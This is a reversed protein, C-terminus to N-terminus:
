ACEIDATVLARLEESVQPRVGFWKEFGPVAQHLLMGLGDVGRLAKEGARKLLQTQLPAYVLDTVVSNGPLGALDIELPAQGTMGLTTTNVLLGCGELQADRTDWDHVHIPGGFHTALADARSRTRNLLRIERVDRALLAHVIARAAGGAGLVVVVPGAEDWGPAGEDLNTIFGYGDTNSAHLEGDEFWLTNAAGIERAAADAHAACQLAAEKHPVTVNGGAFGRDPMARVFDGFDDPSVAQKSYHGDIGHRALWHGHILPSRSHEIPWGIVCAQITM